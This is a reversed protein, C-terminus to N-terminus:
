CRRKDTTSFMLLLQNWAHFMVGIVSAPHLSRPLADRPDQVGLENQGLFERTRFEMGDPYCNGRVQPRNSIGSDTFFASRRLLPCRPLILKCLALDPPHLATQPRVMCNGEMCMYLAPEAIGGVVEPPRSPVPFRGPRGCGPPPRRDLRRATRERRDFRLRM